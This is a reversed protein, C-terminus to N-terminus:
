NDRHVRLAPQGDVEMMFSGLAARKIVASSGNHPYKFLENDDIQRWVAGDQMRLVWKGDPTRSASAVREEVRDIAERKEGREFMSLSPLVFGFAQRQLARRQERDLSVLDGSAQADALGAVARDYCALRQANDALKRCDIVAQLAPATTQASAAIAVENAWLSLVAGLLALEGVVARRLRCGASRGRRLAACAKAGSVLSTLVFRADGGTVPQLTVPIHCNQYNVNRSRLGENVTRWAQRLSKGL